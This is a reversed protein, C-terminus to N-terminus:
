YKYGYINMIVDVYYVKTIVDKTMEGVVSYKNVLKTDVYAKDNVITIDKFELDFGKNTPNNCINQSEDLYGEVEFPYSENSTVVTGVIKVLSNNTLNLDYRTESSYEFKNSNVDLSLGNMKILKGDIYVESISIRGGVITKNGDTDIKNFKSVLAIDLHGYKYNSGPKVTSEKEQRWNPIEYIISKIKLNSVDLGQKKLKEMYNFADDYNDFQKFEVEETKTEKISGTRVEGYVEYDSYKRALSDKIKNAEEITDYKATGVNRIITDKSTDRVKTIKADGDKVDNNKKFEELTKQAEAITDFSEKFNVEVTIEKKIINSNSIKYGQKVLNDLYSKADEKSSFEKNITIQEEGVKTIYPKIVVTIKYDHDDKELENKKKLAEEETLGTYADKETKIDPSVYRENVMEKALVTSFVLGFSLLVLLLKRKNM